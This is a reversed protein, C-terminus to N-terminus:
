DIQAYGQATKTLTRSAFAILRETGDNMVHSLVAGVGVPSADFALRLPLSTDYHALVEKSTIM